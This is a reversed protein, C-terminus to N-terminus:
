GWGGGADSVANASDGRGSSRNADGDALEDTATDTVSNLGLYEAPKREQDAIWALLASRRYYVRRGVKFFPAFSGIARGKKQSARPIRFEVEVDLPTLISEVAQSVNARM